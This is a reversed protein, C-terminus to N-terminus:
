EKTLVDDFKNMVIEAELKRLVEAVKQRVVEDQNKVAAMEGNSEIKEIAENVKLLRELMEEDGAGDVERVIESEEGQKTNDEKEDMFEDITAGFERQFKDKM